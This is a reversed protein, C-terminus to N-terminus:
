MGYQDESGSADLDHLSSILHTHFFDHLGGQLHKVAESGHISSQVQM